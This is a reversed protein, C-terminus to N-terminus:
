IEYAERWSIPFAQGGVVARFLAIYTVFSLACFGVAIGVYVPNADKLKGVADGFGVLKPLLFYIGVILVAMVLVTQVAAKTTFVPLGDGEDEEEGPDVPASKPEVTM